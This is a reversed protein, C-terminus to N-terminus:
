SPPPGDRLQSCKDTEHRGPRAATTAATCSPKRAESCVRTSSRRIIPPCWWRRSATPSGEVSPGGVREATPAKLSGAAQPPTSSALSPSARPSGRRWAAPSPAWAGGPEGETKARCSHAKWGPSMSPRPTAPTWLIPGMVGVEANVPQWSEGADPSRYLGAGVMSAYLTDPNSPDMGLAHVDTAPLGSNDQEWSKGGDESRFFGPHGGAYMKSPVRPDVVWGMPDAGELDDIQRWTAGADNSIAAGGQGGVMVRDPDKSDVAMAHFDGGVVPRETAGAESSSGNPGVSLLASAALLVALTLVAVTGWLLVPSRGEKASKVNTTKSM